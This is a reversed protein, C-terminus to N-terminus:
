VAPTPRSSCSVPAPAMAHAWEVDLSIETAWSANTAPAFGNVYQEVKTLTPDALGFEQDFTHLDAAINPDNYADVIAITEGAGNGAVTGTSTSFSIQNSGYAQQIQAPTLGSVVTNLPTGGGGAFFRAPEAVIDALPDASLLSRQELSEFQLRAATSDGRRKSSAIGRVGNRQTM